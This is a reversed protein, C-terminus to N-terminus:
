INFIWVWREEMDKQDSGYAVVKIIHWGFAWKDWKWSYPPEYLTASPQTEGDIYFEVREVEVRSYSVDAEITIPGLIISPPKDLPMIERDFIYLSRMKPKVINVQIDPPFCKILWADGRKRGAIVYGGDDAQVVSYAADVGEGGFIRDWKKDGNEDTKILLINRFEPFDTIGTIIYGGDSTQQVCFGADWGSSSGFIRDWEKNGNGDTKILWVSSWGIGYSETSGTTIYGGDKTQV